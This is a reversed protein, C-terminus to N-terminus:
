TRVCVCVCVCECVCVYIVTYTHLHQPLQQLIVEFDHALTDGVRHGLCNHEFEDVSELDVSCCTTGHIRWFLGIFGQFLRTFRCFLGTYSSLLDVINLSTLARWTWETM